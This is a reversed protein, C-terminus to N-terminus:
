RFLVSSLVATTPPSTIEPHRNDSLVEGCFAQPEEVVELSLVRHHSVERVHDHDLIEPRWLLFLLQNSSPQLAFHADGKAQSLRSMAAVRCMHLRSRPWFLPVSNTPPQNVPELLPLRAHMM